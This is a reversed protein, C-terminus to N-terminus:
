KGDDGADDGADDDDDDNDFDTLVSRPTEPKAGLGAAMALGSRPLAPSALSLLGSGRHARLTHLLSSLTHRHHHRHHHM